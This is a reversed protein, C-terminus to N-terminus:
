IKRPIGGSDVSEALSESSVVRRCERDCTGFAWRNWPAASPLVQAGHIALKFPLPIACCIVPQHNLWVESFNSNTLQSSSM